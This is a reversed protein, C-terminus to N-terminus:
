RPEEKDIIYYWHQRNAKESTKTEIYPYDLSNLFNYFGTKGYMAGYGDDGKDTDDNIKDEDSETFRQWLCIIVRKKAVRLAERIPKEYGNTHELIDQLIVVDFLNDVFELKRCDGLLIPGIGYREDLRQNAVRVFKPSLDIGVYEVNIGQEKFHDFNWAPGCGSDLVSEGDNIFAAIIERTETNAGEGYGEMYNAAEEDTFMNDWYNGM